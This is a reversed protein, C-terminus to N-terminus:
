EPSSYDGTKWNKESEDAYDKLKHDYSCARRVIAISGMIAWVIPVIEGPFTWFEYHITQGIFFAAFIIWFFIIEFILVPLSMYVFLKWGDDLYRNYLKEISSNSDKAKKGGHKEMNNMISRRVLRILILDIIVATVAVVLITTGWVFTEYQSQM